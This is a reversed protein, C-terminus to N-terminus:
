LQINIGNEFTITDGNSNTLTKTPMPPVKDVVDFNSYNNNLAVKNICEACQKGIYKLFTQLYTETTPDYICPLVADCDKKNLLDIILSLKILEINSCPIGSKLKNLYDTGKSDLCKYLTNIRVNIEDGTINIPVNIPPNCNDVNTAAPVLIAKKVVGVNLNPIVNDVTTKTWIAAETIDEFICESNVNIVPTTAYTIYDISNKALESVTWFGNLKSIIFKKVEKDLTISFKYYYEGSANIDIFPAIEVLGTSNITAKTIIKVTDTETVVSNIPTTFEILVGFCPNSPDQACTLCAKPM